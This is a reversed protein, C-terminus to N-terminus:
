AGMLDNLTWFSKVVGAAMTPRVRMTEPRWCFNYSAMHPAVADGIKDWRAQAVAAMRESYQRQQQEM